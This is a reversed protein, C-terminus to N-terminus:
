VCQNRVSREKSRVWTPCLRKPGNRHQATPGFEIRVAEVTWAARNSSIGNPLLATEPGNGVRAVESRVLRPAVGKAPYAGRLKNQTLRPEILVRKPGFRSSILCTDSWFCKPDPGPRAPGTDEVSGTNFPVWGLRERRPSESRGRNPGSGCEDCGTDSLARKSSM